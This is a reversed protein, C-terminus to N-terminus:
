VKSWAPGESDHSHSALTTQPTQSLPQQQTLEKSQMDVVRKSDKGNNIVNTTRGEEPYESVQLFWRYVFGDLMVLFSLVFSMIATTYFVVSSGYPKAKLDIGANALIDDYLRVWFRNQEVLAGTAIGAQILIFVFFLGMGATSKLNFPGLKYRALIDILSFVLAACAAFLLSAACANILYDLTYCGTFGDASDTTVQTGSIEIQEPVCLLLPIYAYKDDVTYSNIGDRSNHLVKRAELFALIALASYGLAVLRTIATSVRSVKKLTANRDSSTSQDM